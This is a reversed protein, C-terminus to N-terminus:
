CPFCVFASDCVLKVQSLTLVRASVRASEWLGNLQWNIVLLWIAASNRFTPCFTFSRQLRRSLHSDKFLKNLACNCMWFDFVTKENHYSVFFAFWCVRPLTELTPMSEECLNFEQTDVWRCINWWKVSDFVYMTWSRRVWFMFIM